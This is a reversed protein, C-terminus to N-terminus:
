GPGTVLQLPNVPTGNRRIEFHLRPERQPGLGMEAIKQGRAVDDGQAVLVRDNYGYASLYSDDHKIIVLQGYGILGTGAYVVRGAAAANVPQGLRGAIGVGSAIATASGFATVVRGDTPWQWRPPPGARPPPPSTTTRRPQASPGPSAATPRRPASSAPARAATRAPPPQLRLRQGVHILNPDDLRNWRALTTHDLNYRFAISYLTEGRQVVHTRAEYNPLSSQCAALLLAVAVPMSGARAVRRALARMRTVLSTM